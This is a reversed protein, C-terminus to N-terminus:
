GHVGANGYIALVHCALPLDQEITLQAFHDYGEHYTESEGTVLPEPADMPSSPSRSPPRVGNVKPNASQHLRLIAQNFRKSKGQASGAPFGGELPLTVVKMNYGLGAEVVGYSDNLPVQGGSVVASPHVAGDAVIQVTEGELHGLGSLVSIPSAPNDYGIGSDMFKNHDMFEVHRHVAGNITRKVIMWLQDQEGNPISAISEVETDLADNIMPHNAWGLVSDQELSPDYTMSILLGDDRIAWVVSDPKKTYATAVIGSFSIHEAQWSLDRTDWVEANSNRNRDINRLQRGSDDVFLIESHLKIPMLFKSGTGNVPDANPPNTAAGVFNNTPTMAWLNASTGIILSKTPYLWQVTDNTYSALTYEIADDDVVPSTSGFNEFDATKSLWITNPKLITGGFVLRQHFFAVSRPFGDAHGDSNGLWHAVPLTAGWTVTGITFAAAGTRTLKRPQFNPHTMYMVDNSQAFQIDWVEAASWPTAIELPVSPSSEVQGSDSYFRMYLNGLELVYSDVNSVVFPILRTRDADTKVGNVYQTGGRKKIGGRTDPLANEVTDCAANYLDTSIRGRLLESLEGGNFAEKIPSFRSM